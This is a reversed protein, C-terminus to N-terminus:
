GGAVPPMIHVTDGENLLTKENRHFNVMNDNIMFMCFDQLSIKEGLRYLGRIRSGYKADVQNLLDDIDSAELDVTEIGTVNYLITHFRITIIV